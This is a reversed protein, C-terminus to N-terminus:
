TSLTAGGQYAAVLEQAKKGSRGAVTISLAPEDSLLTILRRGFVGYGGLILLKM